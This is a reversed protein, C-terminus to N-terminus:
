PLDPVPLLELTVRFGTTALLDGVGSWPFRPSVVLGFDARGTVPSRLTVAGVRSGTQVELGPEGRSRM